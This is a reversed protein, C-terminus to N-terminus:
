TKNWVINIIVLCRRFWNLIMKMVHYNLFFCKIIKIKKLLTQFYWLLLKLLLLYVFLYVVCHGFSFPCVIILLM